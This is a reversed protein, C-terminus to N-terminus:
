WPRLGQRSPEWPAYPTDSGIVIVGANKIKEPLRAALAPDTKIGSTDFGEALAAGSIGVSILAALAPASQLWIRRNIM